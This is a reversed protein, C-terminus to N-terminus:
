EQMTKLIQDKRGQATLRDNRLGDRLAMYTYVVLSLMMLVIPINDPKTIIAVFNEWGTPVHVPGGLAGASALVGEFSNLIGM